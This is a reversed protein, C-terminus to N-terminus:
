DRVRRRSSSADCAGHSSTLYAKQSRVQCTAPWARRVTPPAGTRGYTRRGVPAKLADGGKGGSRWTDPGYRLTRSSGADNTCASATRFAGM